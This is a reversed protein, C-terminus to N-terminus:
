AKKARYQRYGLLGLSLAAGIMGYTKPEPAGGTQGICDYTYIVEVSLNAFTGEGSGNLLLSVNGGGGIVTQSVVTSLPLNITGAGAFQAIPVATTVNIPVAPAGAGSFAQTGGSVISFPGFTASANGTVWVTTNDAPNLVNFPGSFVASANETQPGSNFLRGASSIGGVLHISVGQLTKV